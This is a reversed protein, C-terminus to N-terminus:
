FLGSQLDSTDCMLQLTLELVPAVLIPANVLQGKLFEFVKLCDADFEFAFDKELFRTMSRTINSFDRIFRLYFGALGLFSRVSKVSTPPHHRSIINIKARDLEIGDPSFKHELVIRKTVM